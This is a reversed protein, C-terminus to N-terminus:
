LATSRVELISKRPGHLRMVNFAWDLLKGDDSSRPVVVREHKLRGMRYENAEEGRRATVQRGPPAGGDRLSQLWM